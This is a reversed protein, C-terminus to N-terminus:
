VALDKQPRKYMGQWAFPCNKWIWHMWDISGLMGPFGGAKNEALTQATNEATPSRLYEPGFVAVVARCIKYFCEIVTSEAMRLYDDQTDAPARYPLLRLTYYGLM